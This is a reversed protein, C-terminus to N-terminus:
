EVILTGKGMGMACGFGFTGTKTPTFEIKNNTDLFQGNIDFEPIVLSRFCGNLRTTDGVIQVKKNAKVTITEPYYNLKGWSLHRVQLDATDYDKELIPTAKKESDQLIKEKDFTNQPTCSNLLLVLSIIITVTLINIKTKMNEGQNTKSHSLHLHIAM